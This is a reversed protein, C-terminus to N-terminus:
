FVLYACVASDWKTPLNIESSSGDGNPGRWCPWNQAKVSTQMLFVIFIIKVSRYWYNIM